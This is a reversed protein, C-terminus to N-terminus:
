YAAGSLAKMYQRVQNLAVVDDVLGTKACFLPRSNDHYSQALDDMKDIVTGLLKGADKEKVLRRTYSAVSATEGPMVYIGSAM